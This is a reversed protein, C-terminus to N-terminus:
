SHHLRLAETAVHHYQVNNIYRKRVKDYFSHCSYVKLSVKSVFPLGLGRKTCINIMDSQFYTRMNIPSNFDKYICVQTNCVEDLLNPRQQVFQPVRFVVNHLLFLSPSGTHLAQPKYKLNCPTLRGSVIRLSPIWVLFRLGLFGGVIEDLLLWCLANILLREVECPVYTPPTETYYLRYLM